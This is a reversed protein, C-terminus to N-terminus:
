EGADSADPVGGDAAGGDVGADSERAAKASEFAAMVTPSTRLTDLVLDPQRELAARFANEALDARGLAVFATGLVRQITVIQNGTLAGTGLLRNALAVAEAYRGHRVHEALHPLRADIRQQLARTAGAPPALGTEQEVLRRGEDSLRLDSLPVLVIRGRDLRNGRVFNFRRLKRGRDSSGYYLKALRPMSDGQAAVHRLPYPVVLEAGDDPQEGSSGQNAEILVFARRADGYYQEAIRAWTEGATVRHYSVWPVTLRMGVVIAAGGQTTLGNEAVLVNERRPDGYYRQAISALTEGARVVHTFNRDAQAGSHLMLGLCSLLGALATLLVVKSPKM